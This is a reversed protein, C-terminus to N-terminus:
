TSHLFVVALPRSELCHLLPSSYLKRPSAAADPSQIAILGLGCNNSGDVDDNDLFQYVWIDEDRYVQGVGQGM